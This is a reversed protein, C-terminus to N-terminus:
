VLRYGVRPTTLLHRPGAGDEIKRRLRGVYTRLTAVDEAHGPGWVDDLLDHHSVLRGRHRILARLLRYEVPALHVEDGGPRRVVRAALDIEVDGLDVIPTIPEAPARRLAAEVRALLERPAFPKTVYDDAGAAFAELKRQEDDAGAVVLVPVASWERVGRCIDLGDGDPLALEHLVAVPSRRATLDLAEAVGRAHLPAFGDGRLLGLLAAAAIEDAEAVVVVRAPSM